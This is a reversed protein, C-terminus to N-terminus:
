STQHKEPTVMPLVCLCICICVCMCEGPLASGCVCVCVVGSDAFIFILMNRAVCMNIGNLMKKRNIKYQMCKRRVVDYTTKM